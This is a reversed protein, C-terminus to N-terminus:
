SIYASNWRLLPGPASVSGGHWPLPSSLWDLTPRGRPDAAGVQRREDGGEHPLQMGGQLLRHHMPKTGPIAM